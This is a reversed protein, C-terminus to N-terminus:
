PWHAAMATSGPGRQTPAQQPSADGGAREPGTCLSSSGEAKEVGGGKGRGVWGGGEGKGGGWEGSEWGGVGGGGVTANENGRAQEEKLHELLKEIEPRAQSLRYTNKIQMVALPLTASRAVVTTLAIAPWWEQLGLTDHALRLVFQLGRTPAWADEASAALAAGEAAAAAALISDPTFVDSLGGGGAAAAAAGDALETTGGGGGVAAAAAALPEDSPLVEPGGLQQQQEQKRGPVFSFHRASLDPRGSGASSHSSGQQWHTYLQLAPPAQASSFARSGGAEVAAAEAGCAM